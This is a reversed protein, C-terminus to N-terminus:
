MDFLVTADGDHEVVRLRGIRHVGGGEVRAVGAMWSAQNRAAARVIREM